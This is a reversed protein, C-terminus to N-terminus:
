LAILRTKCDRWKEQLRRHEEYERESIARVATSNSIKRPDLNAGLNQVGKAIKSFPSLVLGRAVPSTLNVLKNKLASESQSSSINSENDHARSDSPTVNNSQNTRVEGQSHFRKDLKLTNPRTDSGEFTSSNIQIEPTIATLSVNQIVSSLQEDYLHNSNDPSTINEKTALTSEPTEESTAGMVIGVSPLFTEMVKTDETLEIGQEIYSDNKDSGSDYHLSTSEMSANPQFISNEYEEESESSSDKTKGITFKPVKKKPKLSSGLKNLRSFQQTM